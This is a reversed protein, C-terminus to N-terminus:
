VSHKSSFFFRTSREHISGSNQWGTQIRTHWSCRNCSVVLNHHIFNPAM